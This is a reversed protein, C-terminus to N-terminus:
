EKSDAQLDRRRVRMEDERSVVIENYEEDVKKWEEEGYLKIFAKKWDDWSGKDLDAWSDYWTVVAWDRGEKNQFYNRYFFRPTKSGMADLTKKFKEQM